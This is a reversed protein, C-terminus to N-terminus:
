PSLPQQHFNGGGGGGDSLLLHILLQGFFPSVPLAPRIDEFM